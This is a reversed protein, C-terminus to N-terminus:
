RMEGQGVATGAPSPRTLSDHSKQKVSSVLALLPHCRGKRPCCLTGGLGDPEEGPRGM